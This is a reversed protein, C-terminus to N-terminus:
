ACYTEPPIQEITEGTERDTIKIVMRHTNSDRTFKLERNEGFLEAKNLAQVASVVQRTATDQLWKPTPDVPVALGIGSLPNIEM